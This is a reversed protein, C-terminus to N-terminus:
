ATTSIRSTPPELKGAWLDLAFRMEPLYEFRNYIGAVGGLIGSSHNLIREIVHPATGDRALHTAATRRLDHLTWSAVGSLEDLRRKVKSFGSPTTTEKVRAPFVFQDHLRPTSKLVTIALPSLPVIQTRKNKTRTPPITWTRETWDIENWCMGVVEGRRQATLLLLRIIQSFPPAFSTAASWIAAIEDADLVRERSNVPAPRSLRSCPNTEIIGRELCWNLFKRISAFAHNAASPTGADVAEDIVRLIDSRKIERIDRSGWRAVFRSRLVREMERAHNGRYHRTCHIRVFEDVVDSFAYPSREIKRDAQPDRGDAIQNLAALAKQRAKALSIAPYRGLSLRRKNGAVYYMLVFTKVGSPSIRVGFGPMKEDWVEIRKGDKATAQRVALETLM